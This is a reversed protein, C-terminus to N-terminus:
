GYADYGGVLKSNIRIKIKIMLEADQKKKNSTV